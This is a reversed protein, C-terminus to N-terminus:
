LWTYPLKTTDWVQTATPTFESEAIKIGDPYLHEIFFNYKLALEYNGLAMTRFEANHLVFLTHSEAFDEFINTMAYGSVFNAAAQNQKKTEADQWSIKYFEVSPDDNYIPTNGDRFTSEGSQVTGGLCATKQNLDFVHGIEHMFLARFEDDPVNGSLIMISAGALGRNKPNDYRVYFNKLTSWCQEPLKTLADHAIRQHKPLIDPQNFVSLVPEQDASNLLSAGLTSRVVVRREGKPVVTTSTQQQQLLKAFRAYEPSLSTTALTGASHASNANSQIDSPKAVVATAIIGVSLLPLLKKM